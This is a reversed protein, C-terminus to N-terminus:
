LVCIDAGGHKIISSFSAFFTHIIMKQIVKIHPTAHQQRKTATNWKRQIAKFTIFPKTKNYIPNKYCQGATSFFLFDTMNSLANKLILHACVPKQELQKCFLTASYEDEQQGSLM